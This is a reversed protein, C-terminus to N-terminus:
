GRAFRYSIGFSARQIDAKFLYKRVSADWLTTHLCESRVPLLSEQKDDCDCFRCIRIRLLTMLAVAVVVVVFLYTCSNWHDRKKKVRVERVPSTTLAWTCGWLGNQIEEAEYFPVEYDMTTTKM